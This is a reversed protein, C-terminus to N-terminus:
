SMLSSCWAPKWTVLPSPSNTTRPRSGQLSLPAVIGDDDIGLPVSPAHFCDLDAVLVQEIGNERPLIPALVLQGAHFPIVLRPDLFGGLHGPFYLGDKLVLAVQQATNPARRGVVVVAAGVPLHDEHVNSIREM